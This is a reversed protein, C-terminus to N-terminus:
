PSFPPCRDWTAKVGTHKPLHVSSMAKASSALPFFVGFWLFACCYGKIDTWFSFFLPYSQSLIISINLQVLKRGIRLFESQIWGCVHSRWIGINRKMKEEPQKGEGQYSNLFSDRQHSFVNGHQVRKHPYTWAKSNDMLLDGELWRGWALFTREPSQIQRGPTWIYCVPKGEWNTVMDAWFLKM